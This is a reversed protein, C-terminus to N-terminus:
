ILDKKKQPILILPLEVIFTSGMNEKSAVSIKGNMLEVLSKCISLGLGTGSSIKNISKGGQRFREFIVKHYQKAIGEGTDIVNFIISENGKLYYRLIISGKTTFKASNSILNLLIQELRLPDTHIYYGKLKEDKDIILSVEPNDKLLPRATISINDILKEVDFNVFNIDLQGSEIKSIDVIDNIINLLKEASYKIQRLYIHQEKTELEQETVIDSFGLIANMPTRIEHSMNALFSSKLRDSEEAKEKAQKLENEFDKQSNIDILIGTIRIAQNKSDFETIKGHVAYWGQTRNKRYMRLECNFFDTTNNLHANFASELKQKDEEVIFQRWNKPSLNLDEVSNYGLLIALNTNIFINENGIIYDWLGENASNLAMELRKESDLLKTEAKRRALMHNVMLINAVILLILTTFVFVIYTKYKNWFTAPKNIIISNEPLLKEDIKYKLLLSNDFTNIHNTSLNAKAFPKGHIMNMLLNAADYGQSHASVLCGGVIFDDLLFDWFSYIPINTNQFIDKGFDHLNIPLSNKISYLNLLIIVKNEKNLSDLKNCLNSFETGDINIYPIHAYNNTLGDTVQQHFIKGSLTEDSIIVLTDTQPHFKFILDLNEKVNIDERVGKYRNRDYEIDDINNVGCFTVPVPDKWISDGYTLFFEFAHNDACIIGDINSDRYKYKYIDKLSNFYTQDYFRKSDLYEVFIRYGSCAGFGDIVGETLMDTWNYGVHYSNLLLVDHIEDDIACLNSYIFLFLIVFPSKM